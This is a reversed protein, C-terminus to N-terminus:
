EGKTDCSKISCKTEIRTLRKDIRWLFGMITGFCSIITVEIM